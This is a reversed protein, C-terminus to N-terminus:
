RQKKTYRTFCDWVVPKESLVDPRTALYKGYAVNKFTFGGKLENIEWLGDNDVNEGFMHNGGERCAGLGLSHMDPRVCVSDANGGDMWCLRVLGCNDHTTIRYYTKGDKIVPKAKFLHSFGQARATESRSGYEHTMGGDPLRLETDHSVMQFPIRTLHRVTKLRVKDGQLPKICRADREAPTKPKEKEWDLAGMRDTGKFLVTRYAKGWKSTSATGWSGYNAAVYQGFENIKGAGPKEPSWDCETVVIPHTKVVPVQQLFRVIFREGDASAGKGDAQGYWGPYVHVAYGFNDIPDKVPYDIFCQFLSQYGYGPVLIIGKFGNARIVDILPQMYKAVAPGNKEGNEGEIDVPENELEFIVRGALKQLTKNASIIRWEKILHKQYDDGVKTRGETNYSPRIIVYLGHKVADVALPVAVKDVYRQYLRWDCAYFAKADPSPKLSGDFSWHGDDTMRIMNCYSGQSSDTLANYLKSYFARCREVADDDRGGGWRGQNFYPNPGYMVGRLRVTEGKANVLHRGVVRIPSPPQASAAEVLCAACTAFVISLYLGVKKM